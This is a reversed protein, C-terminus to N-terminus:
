EGKLTSYAVLIDASKPPPILPRYSTAREESATHHLDVEDKTSRDTGQCAQIVLLKPKDIIGFKTLNLM